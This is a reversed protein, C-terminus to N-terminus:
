VAWAAGALVAILLFLPWWSPNFRETSEIKMERKRRRIHEVQILFIERQSPYREITPELVDGSKTTITSKM